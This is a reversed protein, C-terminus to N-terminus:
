NVQTLLRLFTTKPRLAINYYFLVFCFYYFVIGYFKPKINQLTQNVGELQKELRKELRDIISTFTKNQNGLQKELKKDVQALKTNLKNM